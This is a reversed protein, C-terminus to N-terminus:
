NTIKSLNEILCERLHEEERIYRAIEIQVAPIRLKSASYEGITEQDNDFFRLIQINLGKLKGKDLLEEIEYALQLSKSFRTTYYIGIDFYESDKMGHIDILKKIKNEAVIEKIKQKYINKREKHYNPDFDCENSLYIGWAQTEECVKKVIEDTYPEAVKYGVNLSPRRHAFGHPASFLIPNDGQIIQFQTSDMYTYNLMYRIM